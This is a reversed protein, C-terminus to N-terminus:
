RTDSLPSVRRSWTYRRIHPYATTHRQLPSLLGVDHVHLRADQIARPRHSCPCAHRPRVKIAFGVRLSSWPKPVLSYDYVTLGHFLISVPRHSPRFLRRWTSVFCLSSGKKRRPEGPIITSSPCILANNFAVPRAHQHVPPTNTSWSLSPQRPFLCHHRWRAHCLQSRSAPHHLSVHATAATERSAFAISLAIPTSPCSPLM